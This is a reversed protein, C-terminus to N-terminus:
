AQGTRHDAAPANGPRPIPAPGTLGPGGLKPGAAEYRGTQVVFALRQEAAELWDIYTSALARGRQQSMMSLDRMWETMATNADEPISSEDGPLPAEHQTRRFRLEERVLNLVNEPGLQASFHFRVQFDPDMPRQSPVYPSLLWEIFQTRGEETLVYLKADPGTTRPDPVVRAWGHEVLRGLQRYIQSTQASYGYVRGYVDFWKRVDYGTRPRSSLLGLSTAELRSLM